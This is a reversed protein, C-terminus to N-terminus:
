VIEVPFRGGTIPDFTRLVAAYVYLAAATEARSRQRLARRWGITQAVVGYQKMTSRLNLRLLPLRTALHSCSRWVVFSYGHRPDGAVLLESIRMTVAVPMDVPAGSTTALRSRNDVHLQM